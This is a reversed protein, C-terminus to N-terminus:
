GSENVVRIVLFNACLISVCDVGCLNVIVIVLSQQFVYM